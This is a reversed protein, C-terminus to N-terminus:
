YIVLGNVLWFNINIFWSDKGYRKLRLCVVILGFIIINYVIKSWKYKNDKWKIYFWM